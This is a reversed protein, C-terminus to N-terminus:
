EGIIGLIIGKLLEQFQLLTLSIRRYSSFYGSGLM